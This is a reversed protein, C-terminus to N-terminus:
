RRPIAVVPNVVKRDGVLVVVSDDHLTLEYPQGTLANTREPLPKTATAAALALDWAETRARDRALEAQALTLSQACLKNAFWAYDNEGSHMELLRDAEVLENRSAYFPKRSSETIHRMYELYAAQDADIRENSLTRLTPLVGDAQLRAREKTTFLLEVLGLRIAEYTHLDIARERVLASEVSPWNAFSQEIRARFKELEGRSVGPNTALMEAVAFLEVRLEAGVLWAELLREELLWDIWQWAMRLRGWAYEPNRDIQSVADVLLLRVGGKAQELFRFDGFRGEEYAVNFNCGPRKTAAVMGALGEGWGRRMKDAQEAVLNRDVEHTLTGLLGEATTNVEGVDLSAFLESLVTAANLHAPLGPRNLDRPLARAEEILRFEERLKSHGSARVGPLESAREIRQELTLQKKGCGGLLLVALWAVAFWPKKLLRQM